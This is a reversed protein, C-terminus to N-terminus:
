PYGRQTQQYTDPRSPPDLYVIEEGGRVLPRDYYSASPRLRYEQHAIPPGAEVLRGGFQPGETSPQIIERRAEPHVSPAYERGGHEPRVSGVREGYGGAYEYRVPEAPRVSAARLYQPEVVRREYGQPPAEYRPAETPIASAARIGLNRDPEGGVRRDYAGAVEYRIGEGVPRV